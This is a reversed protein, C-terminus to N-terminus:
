WIGDSGDFGQPVDLYKLRVSANNNIYWQRTFSKIKSLDFSDEITLWSSTKLDQSLPVMLICIEPLGSLQIPIQANTQTSITTTCSTEYM